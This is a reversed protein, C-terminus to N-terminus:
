SAKRKSIRPEEYVQVGPPLEQDNDYLSRCKKNFNESHIRYEPEFYTEDQAEAWERFRPRDVVNFHPFTYRSILDGDIKTGDQEREVLLEDVHLKAANAEKSLRDSERNAETRAKSKEQWERVALTLEDTQTDPM